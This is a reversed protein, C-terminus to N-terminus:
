EVGEIEAEFGMDKIMQFGEGAPQGGTTLYGSVFISNVAYLALGQM